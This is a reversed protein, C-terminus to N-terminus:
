VRGFQGQRAPLPEAPAAPESPSTTTTTPSTPETPSTTTTTTPTADSGGLLQQLLQKLQDMLKQIMQKISDFIGDRQGMATTLDAAQKEAAALPDAVGPPVAGRDLDHHIGALVPRLDDVASRVAATDHNQYATDLRDRIQTLQRVTNPGSASTAATSAATAVNFGIAALVAGALMAVLVASLHKFLM